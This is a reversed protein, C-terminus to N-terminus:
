RARGSLYEGVAAIVPRRAAYGGRQSDSGRGGDSGAAPIERDAGVGTQGPDGQRDAGDPHRSQCPRLVEHHRYGGGVGERGACVALIPQGVLRAPVTADISYGFESALPEVLTWLSAVEAKPWDRWRAVSAQHIGTTRLIKLDQFGTGHPRRFAEQVINEPCDVGIFDFIGRVTSDTRAVLDEYKVVLAREGVASSFLHIRQYVELWYQAWAYRGKGHRLVNAAIDPDENHPTQWFFEELSGICDLPHRVVCLYQPERGFIQDILPLLRYYNPTKDAWREKHARSAYEVFVDEIFGRLKGMLEETSLGLCQLGKLVQPYDLFAEIGGIFKSEPPCAIRPHADLIYRLLTTGSRHGGAIFLPRPRKGHERM